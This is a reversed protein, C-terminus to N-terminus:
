LTYSGLVPPWVDKPPHDLVWFCRNPHHIVTVTKRKTQSIEYSRGEFDITHDNNVRRSTRLSLHLDLLTALPCARLSGSKELLAEQWVTIPVLDTSRNKTQNQRTIEM